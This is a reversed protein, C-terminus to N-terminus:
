QDALLVLAQRAERKLPLQQAAQLTFWQADRIEKPSLTLTPRTNLTIRFFYAMYQLGNDGSKQKTIYTLADPELRIGLEEHAERVTAVTPEEGRQIGGGPLTWADRDFFYRGSSRVLLVESGHQIIVRTRKSGLFYVFLGPWLVMFGLKRFM